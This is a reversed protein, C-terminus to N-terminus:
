ILRQQRAATIAATRNDVDLKSYIHVLHTKVTAESIFLKAALQRNSLGQELNQLIEIERASLAQRPKSVRQMLANAVKPALTRRGEFTAIVADHLASEPADKLLYGMAGAEVAALIDAETDYTTLILVPPGGASALARTLTIGDTGPMQIDTVVVDIGKTNINSGDSAEAVVTIDDFSDLISRLGARVVPHDDILMVRIM